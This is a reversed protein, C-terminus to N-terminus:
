RYPTARHEFIRNQRLCRAAQGAVGRETPVADVVSALRLSRSDARPMAPQPRGRRVLCSQGAPIWRLTGFEVIGAGGSPSLRGQADATRVMSIETLTPEVPRYAPRCLLRPDAWADDGNGEPHRPDVGAPARTAYGIPVQVVVDVERASTVLDQGPCPIPGAASTRDGVGRRRHVRPHPLATGGPALVSLYGRHVM